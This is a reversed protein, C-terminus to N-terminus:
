DQYFATLYISGSSIRRKLGKMPTPPSPTLQKKKESQPPPPTLWNIIKPQCPHSLPDPGGMKPQCLIHVAGITSCMNSCWSLKRSVHKLLLSLKQLLHLMIHTFGLLLKKGSLSMEPSIRVSLIYSFYCFNKQLQSQM